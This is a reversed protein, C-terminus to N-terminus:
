GREKPRPQLMAKAPSRPLLPPTLQGQPVGAQDGACLRRWALSTAVQVGKVVRGGGWFRGGARSVGGETGVRLVGDIGKGAARARPPDRGEGEAGSAETFGDKRVGARCGLESSGCSEKGRKAEVKGAWQAGRDGVATEASGTGIGGYNGCKQDRCIDEGHGLALESGQLYAM